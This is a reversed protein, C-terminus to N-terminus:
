KCATGMVSTSNECCSQPGSSNFRTVPYTCFLLKPLQERHVFRVIVRLHHYGIFFHVHNCLQTSLM